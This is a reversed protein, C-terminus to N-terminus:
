PALAARQEVVDALHERVLVLAGVHLEADLHGRLVALIREDHVADGRVVVVHRM